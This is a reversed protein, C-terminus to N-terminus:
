QNGDEGPTKDPVIQDEQKLLQEIEEPTLKPEDGPKNSGDPLKTNVVNTSDFVTKISDVPIRSTDTLTNDKGFSNYYDIRPKVDNAFDSNAYDKIIRNYYLMTSDKNFYINEYIWGLSYLTNDVYASSPYKTLVDQFKAVADFYNRDNFSKAALNYSEEAADKEIEVEKIGLIKRSENAFVSNPYESILGNLLDNGEADRGANKYVTALTYVAKPKLPSDSFDKILINLYYAASDNNQIDFIFIEALEYYANFKKTKEDAVNRVTTDIPNNTEPIKLSDTIQENIQEPIQEPMYGDDGEQGKRRNDNSDRNTSNFGGGKPGPGEEDVPPNNPNNPDTNRRDDRIVGRDEDFIKRFYELQSNYAPIQIKDTGNAEAQLTFYRDLVDARRQSIAAYDGNANEESAKKYNVLANLYDKKVDEYFQALHYYADSSSKTNPYKIIVEYYKDLGGAYNKEAYLNNALELEALQKYEPYDRYDSNLDELVEEAKDFQKNYILSKGYNLRAFFSLDFDSTMEVVREYVTASKQPEFLNYIKALIYEKESKRESNKTNNISNQFYKIAESFNRKALENLALEQYAESIVETNKSEKLLKQLITEAESIQGLKMKTRGLFLVAEDSLPSASLKSLFESFKREAQLYDTLFYYSKGILLVADDLFKSNKHFQIVKSCREITKNLKEKTTQSVPLVINLSDLRRNYESITSTRIEELAANYDDTATYFVNFYTSFNEMRNGMFIYNTFNQYNPDLSVEYNPEPDLTDASGSKSITRNTIYNCSQLSYFACFLV